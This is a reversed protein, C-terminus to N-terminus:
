VKLDLMLLISRRGMQTDDQFNRGRLKEDSSTSDSRDHTEIRDGGKCSNSRHCKSGGGVVKLAMDQVFASLRRLVPHLTIAHVAIDLEGHPDTQHLVVQVTTVLKEHLHLNVGVQYM